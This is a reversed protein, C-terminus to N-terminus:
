AQGRLAVTTRLPHHCAVIHGDGVERYEPVENICVETVASCRTRFRCGSPPNVASPIEGGLLSGRAPRPASPDPVPVANLLARTYHHAPNGFVEDAPGMEVLKGLYMVGIRDAIYRVVALDHSIFIYSLGRKERLDTMLNLIQAQISVDLASVPEDAIILKPQLAMARALGVRQRQGGSFEHPYRDAADAPLGVEDLLAAVRKDREDASLGGQIDLPEAIIDRVRKRPDLSAYPDQFIMQRIKALEKGLSKSNTATVGDFTVDGSTLGELGMILKGITTKGCGSEGVLGFTEGERVQFSVDAVASVVKQERNFLGTRRLPFEKVASRVDLIVREGIHSPAVGRSENHLTAIGQVPNFCAFTHTATLTAQEPEQRRCEDTAYACRPAFRCGEIPKSLDPPM